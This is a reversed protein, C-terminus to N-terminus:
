FQMRGVNNFVTYTPSLTPTWEFRVMGDGTGQPVPPMGRQIRYSFSVAVGDSGNGPLTPFQTCSHRRLGAM